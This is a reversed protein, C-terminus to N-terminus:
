STKDIPTYFLWAVALIEERKAELGEQLKIGLYVLKLKEPVDPKRFRQEAVLLMKWIVATGSPVKRYRKAVDTRLGLGAFPSEVPDTTGSWRRPRGAAFGDRRDKAEKVSQLYVIGQLGRKALDHPYLQPLTSAAM